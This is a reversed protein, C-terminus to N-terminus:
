KTSNLAELNQLVETKKASQEALRTERRRVARAKLSRERKVLKEPTNMKATRRTKGAPTTWYEARRKVRAARRAKNRKSISGDKNSAFYNKKSNGMVSKVKVPAKNEDGFMSTNAM